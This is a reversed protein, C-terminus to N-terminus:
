DTLPFINDLLWSHSWRCANKSDAQDKVQQILKVTLNSPCLSSIIHSAMSCQSHTFVDFTSRDIIAHVYARIELGGEVGRVLSGHVSQLNIDVIVM